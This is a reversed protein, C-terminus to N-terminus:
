ADCIEVSGVQSLVSLLMPFYSGFLIVMGYLELLMGIIPYRMLVLVIGLCFSM